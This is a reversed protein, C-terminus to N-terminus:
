EFNQKNRIKQKGNKAYPFFITFQSYWIQFHKKESFFDFKRQDYKQIEKSVILFIVTSPSSCRMLFIWFLMFLVM